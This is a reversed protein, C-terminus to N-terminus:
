RSASRASFCRMVQADTATQPCGSADAIWRRVERDDLADFIQVAAQEGLRLLLDAAVGKVRDDERGALVAILSRVLLSAPLALLFALANDPAPPEGDAVAHLVRGMEGPMHGGLCGEILDFLPLTADGPPIAFFTTLVDAGVDDGVTFLFSEAEDLAYARDEDSRAERYADVLQRATMLEPPVPRPRGLELRDEGDAEPDLPTHM